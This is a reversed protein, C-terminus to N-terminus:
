IKTMVKIAVYEKMEQVHKTNPRIKYVRKLGPTHTHTHTHTHQKKVQKNLEKSKSRPSIGEGQHKGMHTSKRHSGSTNSYNLSLKEKKARSIKKKEIRM